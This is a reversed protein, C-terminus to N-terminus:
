RKSCVCTKKLFFNKWGDAHPLLLCVQTKSKPAWKRFGWWGPSLGGGGGRLAFKQNGLCAHVGCAVPEYDQRQKREQIRLLALCPSSPPVPVNSRRGSAALAWGGWRGEVHRCVFPCFSTHSTRLPRSATHAGWAMGRFLPVDSPSRPFPPGRCCNSRRAAEPRGSPAPLHSTRRWLRSLPGCACPRSMRLPFRPSHCPPAQASPPPPSPTWPPTGGGFHM